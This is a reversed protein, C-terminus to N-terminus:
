PEKTPEPPVLGASQVAQEMQEFTLAGPQYAALFGERDIIVSLPYGQLQYYNALFFNADEAVRLADYGNDKLYQRATEEPDNDPVHVLILALAEGYKEQLKKLDGLEQVCYPCWSTFFNLYVVKGKLESFIIPSGEFDNLLYPMGKANTPVPTGLVVPSRPATTVVSSPTVTPTPVAQEAAACASLLLTLCLLLASLRLRPHNM